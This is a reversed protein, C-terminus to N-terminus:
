RIRLTGREDYPAGYAAKRFSKGPLQYLHEVGTRKHVLSAMKSGHDPLITVRLIDSELVLSRVDKYTAEASRSRMLRQSFTAM